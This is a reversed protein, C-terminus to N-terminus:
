PALTPMNNWLSETFHVVQAGMMSGFLVLALAVAALKPVFSLTQEQIQTVAQVLGIAVGVILSVLLAPASMLLVLYLAETCLHALSTSDVPWSAIM